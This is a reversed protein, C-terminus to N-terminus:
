EGVAYYGNACWLLYQRGIGQKLGKTDHDGALSTKVYELTFMSMVILFTETKVFWAGGAPLTLSRRQGRRRITVTRVEGDVSRAYLILDLVSSVEHGDVALILDNDEFGVAGAVSGPLVKNVGVALDHAVPWGSAFCVAFLVVALIWNCMPGAILFALRVRRSREAFLTGPKGQDALRDADLRRCGLAEFAAALASKGSGIGGVLGIIPLRRTTM